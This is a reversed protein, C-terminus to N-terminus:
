PIQILKHTQLSLSWIPHAKIYSVALSINEANRQADGTDCPQLRYEGATMKEYPTIDQGWYVVKLENIRDLVIPAGKPSCTIWDVNAPVPHTGNTEVQVYWGRDHLRDVFEETLQLSPEGGTIVVHRSEFQDISQLIEDVTM